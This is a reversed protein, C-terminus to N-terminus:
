VNPPPTPVSPFFTRLHAAEDDVSPTAILCQLVRSFIDDASSYLYDKVLEKSIDSSGKANNEIELQMIVANMIDRDFHKVIVPSLTIMM